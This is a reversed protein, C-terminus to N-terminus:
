NCGFCQPKVSQVVSLSIGLSPVCCCGCLWDCTLESDLGKPLAMIYQQFFVTSYESVPTHLPFTLTRQQQRLGQFLFIVMYYLVCKELHVTRLVFVNHLLYGGTKAETILRASYLMWRITQWEYCQGPHSIVRVTSVKALRVVAKPRVPPARVLKEYVHSNLYTIM